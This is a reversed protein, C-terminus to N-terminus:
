TPKPMTSKQLNFSFAKQLNKITDILETCPKCNLKRATKLSEGLPLNKITSDEIKDVINFLFDYYEKNTTELLRAYKQLRINIEAIDLGTSMHNKLDNILPVLVLASGGMQKQLAVYKAKYKLYKKYYSQESNM